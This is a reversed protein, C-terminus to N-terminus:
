INIEDVWSNMSDAYGKWKVLYKTQGKVKKTKVIYEIEYEEDEKNYPVLEEEYFIGEIAEDKYDKLKYTTPNTKLINSISFIEDTYNQEFGKKFIHKYKAIRVCDRIKFKIKTSKQRFDDGYLNNRVKDENKKLSAELPTTKISRHYSNNYNFVLDDIVDIWKHNGMETFHKWMKEKLTRNFREVVSAKFLSNTSFHNINYKKFLEQVKANYFEKGHDTQVKEPIRENFIKFFANVTEESTKNKMPIAWSYKSFIDICCLLYKYGENEKAYPIMEVLDAQFQDNIGNVITKRTIFKKIIPRHKSYTAQENLFEEVVKQSLGTKRM